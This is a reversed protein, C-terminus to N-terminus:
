LGNRPVTSSSSGLWKQTRRSPMNRDCLFWYRRDCVEPTWPGKVLTPNLVKQWRYSCQQDNKDHNFYQAIVKWIEPESKSKNEQYAKRLVADQVFLYGCDMLQIVLRSQCVGRRSVMEGEVIKEQQSGYWVRRRWLRGNGQVCSLSCLHVAACRTHVGLLVCGPIDDMLFPELGLDEMEM